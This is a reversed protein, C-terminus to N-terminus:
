SIGLPDLCPRLGFGRFGFSIRLAFDSFTRPRARRPSQPLLKQNFTGYLLWGAMATRHLWHGLQVTKLLPPKPCSSGSVAAESHTQSSVSKVMWESFAKNPSPWGWAREALFRAPPCHKLRNLFESRSLRRCASGMIKSGC